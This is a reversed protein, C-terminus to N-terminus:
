PVSVQFPYPKFKKPIKNVVVAVEEENGVTSTSSSSMVRSHITNAPYMLFATTSLRNRVASLMVMRRLITTTMPMIIM